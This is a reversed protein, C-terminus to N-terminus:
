KMEMNQSSKAALTVWRWLKPSATLANLKPVVMVIALLATAVTRAGPRNLELFAEWRAQLLCLSQPRPGAQVPRRRAGRLLGRPVPGQPVPQRGASRLLVDVAADTRGRSPHSWPVGPLPM